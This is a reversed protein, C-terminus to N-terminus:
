AQGDTSEGTVASVLALEESEQRIVEGMSELLRASGHLGAFNLEAALMGLVHLASRVVAPTSAFPALVPASAPAGLGPFSVLICDSTGSMRCAKKSRLNVALGGRSAKEYRDTEGCM